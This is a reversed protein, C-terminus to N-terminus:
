SGEEAGAGIRGSPSHSDGGSDAEVFIHQLIWALLWLMGFAPALMLIGTFTHMFKQGLEPQDIYYMWCTIAVRIVNCFIAIPVAAAVLIVRQWVPKYDLYAMAVGLACFAMLLRMGSCAEAVTLDRPVNSRSLLHLGSQESSIDVKLKLLIVAGKAAMNQLPLAIQSYLRPSLPLAFVLFLIPLWTIRVVKTGALYLVLGMLVGVMSVQSLWYNKGPYIWLFQGALCLFMLVAGARCTKRPAEMLEVRRVFLLYLSFLPIIFGHTWDPDAIWKKVLWDIHRLNVLVILVTLVAIKILTGTPFSETLSVTRDPEIMDALRAGSLATIGRPEEGGVASRAPSLSDRASAQRGSAGQDLGTKGSSNTM